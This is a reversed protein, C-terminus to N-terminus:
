FLRFLFGYSIVVRVFISWIVVFFVVGKSIVYYLFGMFDVIRNYYCLGYLVINYLIIDLYFGSKLICVWIALVM